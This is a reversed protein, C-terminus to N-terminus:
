SLRILANTADPTPMLITFTGATSVYNGGFDLVQVAKNGRTSNYILAGRATITSAPWAPDAFDIWATSGSAGVTFGSLAIGGASYGTGVVENTADYVTASADLTSAATYLAIKYVDSTQHIGQLVEAKFSNCTAQTM